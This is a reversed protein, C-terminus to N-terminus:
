VRPRFGKGLVEYVDSIVIFADPDVQKVVYKLYSIERRTLVIYLVERNKDTFYSHGKLATVGRRMELAVAWSVEQPKKTIIHAARAYSFGELVLDVVKTNVILALVGFLPAIIGAHFDAEVIGYIIGWSTIIVADLILIWVGVSVNSHKSFFQAVIDTGGTSGRGRFVIGLGIGLIAGGYAASLITEGGITASDLAVPLAPPINLITEFLFIFGSVALIGALSKITYRLGMGKLGLFFIPINLGIYFISVPLGTLYNVMISLGGVGGSVIHHPVLFMSYAIGCVGSGILIMVADRLEHKWNLELRFRKKQRRAPKIPMHSELIESCKTLSTSYLFVGSRSTRYTTNVIESDQKIIIRIVM